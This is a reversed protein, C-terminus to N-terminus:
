RKAGVHEVRFIARDAGDPLGTSDVRANRVVSAGQPHLPTVPRGLLAPEIVLRREFHSPYGQRGQLPQNALRYNLPRNAGARARCLIKCRHRLGFGVPRCHPHDHRRLQFVSRRNREASVHGRRGRGAARCGNDRTTPAEHHRSGQLSHWKRHAPALSTLRTAHDRLDVLGDRLTGWTGHSCLCYTPPISSQDGIRFYVLTNATLNKRDNM